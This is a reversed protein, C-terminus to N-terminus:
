ILSSESSFVRILDERDLKFRVILPTPEARDAVRLCVAKAVFDAWAAASPTCVTHFSTWLGLRM